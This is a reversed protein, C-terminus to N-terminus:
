YIRDTGPSEPWFYVNLINASSHYYITRFYGLLLLIYRVSLALSVLSLLVIFYSVFQLLLITSGGMFGWLFPAALGLLGYVMVRTLRPGLFYSQGNIGGFSYYEYDSVANRIVELQEASRESLVFEKETSKWMDIFERVSYFRMSTAESAIAYISNKEILYKEFEAIISLKTAVTRNFELFSQQDFISGAAYSNIMSKKMYNSMTSGITKLFIEKFVHRNRKMIKTFEIERKSQEDINQKSLTAMFVAATVFLSLLAIELVNFASLIDFVNNTFGFYLIFTTLIIILSVLLVILSNKLNVIYVIVEDILLLLFNKVRWRYSWRYSWNYAKIPRMRRRLRLYRSYNRRYFRGKREISRWIRFIIVIAFCCLIFVLLSAIM